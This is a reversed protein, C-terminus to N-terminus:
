IQEAEADADAGNAQATSRIGDLFASIAIHLLLNYTPRKSYM